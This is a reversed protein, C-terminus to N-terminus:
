ANMQDVTLQNPNPDPNVANVIKAKRTYEYMQDGKLQNPNLDPNVATVNKEM